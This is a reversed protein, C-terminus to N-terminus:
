KCVPDAVALRSQMGFVLHNGVETMTRVAEPTPYRAAESLDNAHLVLVGVTPAPKLFGAGLYIFKGTFALVYRIISVDSTDIARSAVIDGSRSVVLLCDGYAVVGLGGAVAFGAITGSQLSQARKPEYGSVGLTFWNLQNQHDEQVIALDGTQRDVDYWTRYPKSSIAPTATLVQDLDPVLKQNADRSIASAAFRTLHFGGDDLPAVQYLSRGSALWESEEDDNALSGALTSFGASDSAWYVSTIPRATVQTLGKLGTDVNLFAPRLDKSMELRLGEAQNPLVIGGATVIPAEPQSIDVLHRSFPSHVEVTNPGAARVREFSGQELAILPSLSGTEPNVRVMQKTPAIVAYNGWAPIPIPVAGGDPNINQYAQLIPSKGLLTAGSPGLSYFEAVTSRVGKRTSRELLLGGAAITFGIPTGGPGDLDMPYSTIPNLTDAALVWVDGFGAGAYLSGDANKEVRLEYAVVYDASTRADFIFHGGLGRAKNSMTGDTASVDVLDLGQVASVLLTNGDPSLALGQCRGNAAIGHHDQTIAGTATDVSYTDVMETSGSCTWIRHGGGAAARIQSSIDLHGSPTLRGEHIDYLNVGSQSTVVAVLENELPFIFTGPQVVWIMSSVTASKVAVTTDRRDLVRLTDDVIEVLTLTKGTAYLARKESVFAAATSLGTANGFSRLSGLVQPTTTRPQGSCQGLVCGDRETCID